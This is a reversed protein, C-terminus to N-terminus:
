KGYSHQVAVRRTDLPRVEEVEATLGATIELPLAVQLWQVATFPQGLPVRAILIVRQEVMPSADCGEVDAEVRLVVPIQVLIGGEVIHAEPDLCTGTACFTVPLAVEDRLSVHLTPSTFGSGIGDTASREEWTLARAM